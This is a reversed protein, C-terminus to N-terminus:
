VKKHTFKIKNKMVKSPYIKDTRLFTMTKKSM